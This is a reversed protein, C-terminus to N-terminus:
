RSPQTVPTEAAAAPVVKARGPGRRRLNRVDPVGLVAITIGTNVAFAIWLTESTGLAEAVPGAAALGLPILVFSGLADYSSVRSLKEQPVEQQLSTEWLVGFTEIGVGAAFAFACVAALPLPIALAVLFPTALFLGLTAALLMRQPRVRLMIVGGAVFGAALCAGILGWAAAGGLDDQAVVPGLVNEAQAVANFIAFQAVIVWLWTRSTFERWGERLETFFSSGALRLGGPIRMRALLLAAVLYSGADLAIATGPSTAAVLLGGLASATIVTGSIGLRLFANAQQLLPQPVTQPVIGQSAPFFFASAFGNVAALAALHWVEARGSLLLVALVAQAAGSLVNSMVMVHHRPVRDAWVGGVLLFVVQPVSRAALVLGLDSKSGTLELVAFALAVGAMATGAFSVTRGAFLLGFDRHRLPALSEPLRVSV